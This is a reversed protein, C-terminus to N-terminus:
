FPGQNTVKIECLETHHNGKDNMLAKEGVRKFDAISFQQDCNKIDVM